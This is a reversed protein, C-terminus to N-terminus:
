NNVIPKVMLEIEEINQSQVINDYENGSSDTSFVFKLETNPAVNQGTIVYNKLLETDPPDIYTGDDAVIIFQIHGAGYQDM